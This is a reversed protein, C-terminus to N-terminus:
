LGDGRASVAPGAVAAPAPMGTPTGPLQTGAAPPALSTAPSAPSAANSAVPAVVPDAAPTVPAVPSAAPPPFGLSAIGRGGDAYEAYIWDNGARVLGAPADPETEPVGALRGEMYAAWVPLATTAGFEHEGLSRNDDYGMWAVTVVGGAYGAFWGDMAENTTGTKGAVDDRRLYRSVGAGTGEDVVSRLLSDMVFANRASIVRTPAAAGDAGAPAADFLVNGESDTIREILYPEVRQGGNAFVGYAAALRLPSTTGTGLALPLYRPLRRPSFGFRSAFEVAYPIGIAQLTRIAPLNRSEALAQRVTVPGIFRGDDNSPQWRSSNALPADNIVTGPSVGRELAAAYVFPKFTSGPQRLAQTAHNFRSAAFDAGGVMAEIAGTNADLSVLAAQPGQALTPVAKRHRRAYRQLGGTVADYALTQRVSSVTTYVNLGRTYAEDGFRERALQRALEAVYEAHGAFSGPTEGSIALREARAARYDEQSVMGLALMRGLVYEQRRKARPLNVVPNMTSPAKPLGALMASEALSLAALPKGFYAHAASGFGYAHEGLYVQNMYLELIRDKPLSQDIRWALLMEYWKRALTKERSLYFNRAVQMTITSAGQAYGQGLNALAARFLGSIDVGEHEYFQDDEAALLAQVMRPPIQEFPIFERHESGFEGIQVNDSTYIRLPVDPRYDRLADVPPLQRLSLVAAFGVLLSAAAALALVAGGAKVAIKKM